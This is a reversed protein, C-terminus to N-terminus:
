IKAEQGSVASVFDGAHLAPGASTVLKEAGEALSEAKKDEIEIPMGAGLAAIDM